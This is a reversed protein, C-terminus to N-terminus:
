RGLNIDTGGTRTFDFLAPVQVAGERQIGGLDAAAVATKMVPVGFANVKGARIEGFLQPVRRVPYELWSKLTINGKEDAAQNAELADHLLTFHSAQGSRGAWRGRPRTPSVPPWYGCGSIM